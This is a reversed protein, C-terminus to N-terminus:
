EERREGESCFAYMDKRADTLRCRFAEPDFYYYEAFVCERCYCAGAAHVPDITPIEKTPIYAERHYGDGSLYQRIACSVIDKGSEFPGIDILRKKERMEEFRCVGEIDAVPCYDACMPCDANVCVEDQMWKCDAM